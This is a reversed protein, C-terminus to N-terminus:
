KTAPALDDRRTWERWDANVVDNEQVADQGFVIVEEGSDLGDLIEIHGAQIVPGTQVERLKARSDEVCIVMAKEQKKIVAVSPITTASPKVSMVRVFGSIGARIRNGPNAVEVIVPLVRTKTSVVPAIRIVKGSFTEQGFADLSVEAPQGVDLTDIREMPYDM